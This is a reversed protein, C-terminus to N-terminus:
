MKQAVPWMRDGATGTASMLWGIRYRVGRVTFIYCWRWGDILFVNGNPKINVVVNASAISEAGPAIKMGPSSNRYGNWLWIRVWRPLSAYFPKGDVLEPPNVGLDEDDWVGFFGALGGILILLVGTRAHPVLMALFAGAILGAFISDPVKWVIVSHAPFIKSRSLRVMQTVDSFCALMAVALLGIASFLLGVLQWIAWYIIGFIYM